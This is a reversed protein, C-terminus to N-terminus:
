VPRVKWKSFTWWHNVPRLRDLMFRVLMLISFNGVLASNLALGSFNGVFASNLVSGTPVLTHFSKGSPHIEPLGSALVNLCYISWSINCAKDALIPFLVLNVELLTHLLGYSGFYRREIFVLVDGLWEPTIRGFMVIIKPTLLTYAQIM